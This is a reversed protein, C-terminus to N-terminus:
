CKSIKPEFNVPLTEIEANAENTTTGITIALEAAVIFM